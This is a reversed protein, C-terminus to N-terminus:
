LLSQGLQVCRNFRTLPFLQLLSHTQNVNVIVSNNRKILQIWKLAAFNYVKGPKIIAVSISVTHPLTMGVTTDASLANYGTVFWLHVIIYSVKSNANASITRSM